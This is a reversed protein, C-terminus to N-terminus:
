DHKSTRSEEQVSHTRSPDRALDDGLGPELADAHRMDELLAARDAETLGSTAAKIDAPMKGPREFFGKIANLM